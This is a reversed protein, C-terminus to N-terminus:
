VIVEYVVKKLRSPTSYGSETTELYGNQHLNSNLIFSNQRNQRINANRFCGSTVTEDIQVFNDIMLSGHKIYMLNNENNNNMCLDNSNAVAVPLNYGYTPSDVSSSTSSLSNNIAVPDTNSAGSSSNNNNNYGEVFTIIGKQQNTTSDIQDSNNIYNLDSYIYIGNNNSSCNSLGTSTNEDSNNNNLKSQRKSNSKMKEQQVDDETVLIESQRNRSLTNSIASVIMRKTNLLSGNSNSSANVLNLDGSGASGYGDSSTNNTAGSSSSPLDANFSKNSSQPPDHQQQFASKIIEITSKKKLDTEDQKNLLTKCLKFNRRRICYLVSVFLIILLSLICACIGTILSIPIESPLSSNLATTSKFDQKSLYSMKNYRDIIANFSEQTCISQKAQFCLNVHLIKIQNAKFQTKNLDDMIILNDFSFQDRQISDDIPVCKFHKDPTMMKLCFKVSKKFQQRLKFELRNKPVNLLLHEFMPLLYSNSETLDNTKVKISNSWDSSGLENEAKIQISYLTNHNLNTLNMKFDTTNLLEDNFKIQFTQPLGGDFTNSWNLAISMFDTQIVKLDNPQEPKSIPVLDIQLRNIGLENNLECEYNSNVDYDNLNNITMTNEYVNKSNIIVNGISYKNNSNIKNGNKYWSFLPKPNASTVCTLNYSLHSLNVAQKINQIKLQPMFKVNIEIKNSQKTVKKTRGFSDTMENQASCVYYGNTHTYKISKFELLKTRSVVLPMSEENTYFLWEIKNPEPFSDIQCDVQLQSSEETEYVMKEVYVVPEHLLTIQYSASGFGISNTVYCTLNMQKSSSRSSLDYRNSRKLWNFENNTTLQTINNLKWEIKIGEMPNSKYNCKFIIESDDYVSLKNNNNQTLKHNLLNLTVIPKFGINLSLLDSSQWIQEQDIQVLKCSYNNMHDFSTLNVLTLQSEIKNEEKDILNFSISTTNEIEQDNKYWKITPYPYAHKSICKITTNSSEIILKSDSKILDPKKIQNTVILQYYVSKQNWQNCIYLGSDAFTLNNIVLDFMDNDISYKKNLNSQVETDLSIMTEIQSLETQTKIILKDNVSPVSYLRKFSWFIQRKTENKTSNNNLVSKLRITQSSKETLHITEQVTLTLITASIILVIHLIQNM